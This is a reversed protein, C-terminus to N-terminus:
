MLFYAVAAVVIGLAVYIQAHDASPNKLADMVQDVLTLQKFAQEAQEGGAEGGAEALVNKALLCM